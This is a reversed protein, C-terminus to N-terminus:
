DGAKRESVKKVGGHVGLVFGVLEGGGVFISGDGFQSASDILVFELQYYVTSPNPPEKHMTNQQIM